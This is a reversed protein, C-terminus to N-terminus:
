WNQPEWFGNEIEYEPMPPCWSTVVYSNGDLKWRSPDELSHDLGAITGDAMYECDYDAESRRSLSSRWRGILFRPDDIDLLKTKLRKSVANRVLAAYEADSEKHDIPTFDSM